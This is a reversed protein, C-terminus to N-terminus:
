VAVTPFRVAVGDVVIQVAVRATRRITPYNVWVMLAAGSDGKGGCAGSRGMLPEGIRMEGCTGKNGESTSAALERRRNVFLSDTSFGVSGCCTYHGSGQDAVSRIAFSLLAPFYHM